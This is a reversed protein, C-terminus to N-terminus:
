PGLDWLLRYYAIRDDDARIGYAALLTDVYGDGYNWQTSWTAVALDSWRDGVGLSGLDVHGSWRGDDAILTNPACADGHCVVLRDTPPPEAVRGLADELSLDRHEPAWQDPSRGAARTRIAEAVRTGASWDFPCDDVPLVDHLARLGAGLAQVARVPDALWREDVASKGQLAATQLWTGAEDQGQGLVRPVPTYPEAWRLKHAEVELQLGSGAPAWKVFFDGPVEFTLGGLENRWVARHGRGELLLRLAEPVPTGELPVGAIVPGNQGSRRM